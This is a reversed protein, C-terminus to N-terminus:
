TQDNTLKGKNDGGIHRNYGKEPNMSDYQQILEREWANMNEVDECEILTGVSFNDPGYKAIAKSIAMIRKKIADKKHQKWRTKLGQTTSGIYVKGNISNRILYVQFPANEDNQPAEVYENM